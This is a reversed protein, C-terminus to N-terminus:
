LNRIAAGLAATLTHLTHRDAAFGNKRAVAREVDLLIPEQGTAEAVIAKFSDTDDNSTVCFVENIAHGPHRDHYVLLSSNIERFVRNAEFTSGSIEKARYFELVGGYFIMVSVVSGYWALVAGNEVIALRKTFLSFLNSTNFDIRNPQLGAEALLEEYQNLVQRSILSVLTSIEGTEKEHVVQYDLHAESIDFPFTKKLKWRIIDAGEDKGKFRTELELLMVRGISDPLSVSVREVKTLLKLYAERVGAVFLAPNQINLERLSLRVTDAPFSAVGFAELGPMDRRGGVLAMRVGDPCIEFGLANKAFLM